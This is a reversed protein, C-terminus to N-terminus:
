RRECPTTDGEFLVLYYNDANSLRRLVRARGELRSTIGDPNFGNFIRVINGPVFDHADSM